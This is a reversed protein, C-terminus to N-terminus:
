SKATKKRTFWRRAVPQFASWFAGAQLGFYIATAVQVWQPVYPFSPLFLLLRIACVIALTWLAWQQRRWVSLWILIAFFAITLVEPLVVEPLSVLHAQASYGAAVTLLGLALSGALLYVFM